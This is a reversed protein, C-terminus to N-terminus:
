FAAPSPSLPPSQEPTSPAKATSVPSHSNPAKAPSVSSHSIQARAPSIHLATQKRVSLVVVTMKLGKLCHAQNSTIFYFPGPRDLSVLAHGNFFSRRTRGVYCVNYDDVDRVEHLTELGKQFKFYITDNVQFRNKEAWTNYYSERPNVAWVSDGGVTFFLADAVSFLTAFSVLIIFSFCLSKTIAVM